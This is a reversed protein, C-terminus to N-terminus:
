APQVPVPDLESSLAPAATPAAAPAPAAGPAPAPPPASAPAPTLPAPAPAVPAGLLTAIPALGAIAGRGFPVIDFKGTGTRFTKKRHKAHTPIQYPDLSKIVLFQFFHVAPFFNNKKIM